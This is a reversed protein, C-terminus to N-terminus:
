GDEGFDAETGNVWYNIVCVSEGDVEIEETFVDLEPAGDVGTDISIAKTISVSRDKSNKIQEFRGQIEFASDLSESLVFEGHGQCDFKLGDFTTLHPDGRVTACVHDAVCHGGVIDLDKEPKRNKKRKKKKNKKLAKKKKKTKKAEKQAEKKDKKAADEAKRKDAQAEEREAKKEAREAEKAAKKGM